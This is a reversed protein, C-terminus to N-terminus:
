SVRSVRASAIGRQRKLYVQAGKGMLYTIMFGVPIQLPPFPFLNVLTLGVFAAALALVSGPGAADRLPVGYIRGLLVLMLVQNAMLFLAGVIPAIVIFGALVACWLCVSGASRDKKMLAPNVSSQATPPFPPPTGAGSAGSAHGGSRVAEAIDDLDSM